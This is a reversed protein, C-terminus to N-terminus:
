ATRNGFAAALIVFDSFGVAGNGDLDFRVDYGEDEESLGFKGAFLVFDGFAM